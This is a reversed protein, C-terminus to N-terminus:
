LYNIPNTSNETLLVAFNPFKKRLYEAILGITYQENEYHGIDAILIQNDAEFFQHYKFDSSLFLDAGIAKARSLLFSGSGGCWAIRKIEPKHPTTYRLIGGFTDKIQKLVQEASLAVLLDGYMGSGLDQHLNEIAYVEYAVEEYPHNAQMAKLVAALHAEEVLVELRYEAEEHLAGREGLTPNANESARFTGKGESRFSCQDYEGINGAGAAWLAESLSQVNDQPVFIVLKKLIGARPALIKPRNIGLRRGIEANVGSAVNDLNTHLAYIAIDNQIAKILAREADNKGTLSKLGGFILPHHSIIMQAGKQLAEDVIAETIDLSILVQQVEKKKQGYLLKSNDYSEQYALPAWDELVRIIEAIQM